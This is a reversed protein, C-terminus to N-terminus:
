SRRGTLRRDADAPAASGRASGRVGIIEQLQTAMQNYAKALAGIEDERDVTARVSLKGAAFSETTQALALAPRMLSGAALAGAGVAATRLVDRRNAAASM